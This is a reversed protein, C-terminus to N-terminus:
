KAGGICMLTGAYMGTVGIPCSSALAPKAQPQVEPAAAVVAPTAVPEPAAVAETAMATMPVVRMGDTLPEASQACANIQAADQETLKDFAVAKASAVGGEFSVETKLKGGLGLQAKCEVLALEMQEAQVNLAPGQAVCAGLAAVLILSSIHGRM